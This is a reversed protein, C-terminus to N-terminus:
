GPLGKIMQLGAVGDKSGRCMFELVSDSKSYVNVLRGSVASRLVRWEKSESITPSGMMVVHEVLGFAKREALSKLCAHIVQAGLSYGVLTIPREGQVKNVIADALVEGAKESRSKAVSFPGDLVRSVKSLGVPWKAADSLLTQQQQADTWSASKVMGDMSYGLNLLAEMEYKLAFVEAENSVVSWPKVIEEKETLWGSICVTVRLKHDHESAEKAGKEQDESTKNQSHLPIFEFDEVQKAYTDMMKGTMRGGYAGFLGGILLSSGAVSGLYGAAATAGLGLGGMISGVGAALLPAALGGTVGVIAAGAASALGVKWRRSNKNEEAKKKTEEDATMEKAAELLGKATTYEDQEFTSLPLKLSSTLNLM